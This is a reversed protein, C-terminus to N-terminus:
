LRSRRRPIARATMRVRRQLRNMPADRSSSTIATGITTMTPSARKTM